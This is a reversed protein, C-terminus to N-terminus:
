SRHVQGPLLCEQPKERDVRVQESFRQMAVLVHLSEIGSPVFNQTLGDPVSPRYGPSITESACVHTQDVGFPIQCYVILISFLM